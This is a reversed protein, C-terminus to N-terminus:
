DGFLLGAPVEFRQDDARVFHIGDEVRWDTDRGAGSMTASASIFQGHMFYLLRAFGNPFTVSATVDGGTSRAVGIQCLGLAEGQEQACPIDGTADFTKRKARRGSDNTGRAIIGDPGAVARLNEARLFGRPGGILPRVACWIAGSENACGFNLVIDGDSVVIGVAEGDPALLMALPRDSSVQWRRAGGDAPAALLAEDPAQSDQAEVDGGSLLWAGLMVGAIRLMHHGMTQDGKGRHYGAQPDM